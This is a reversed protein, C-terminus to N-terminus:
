GAMQALMFLIINHEMTFNWGEGNFSIADYDDNENSINMLTGSTSIEIWSYFANYNMIYGGGNSSSTRLFNNKRITNSDQSSKIISLYFSTLNAICIFLVLLSILFRESKIYNRLNHNRRKRL